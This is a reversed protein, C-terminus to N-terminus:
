GRSMEGRTPDKERTKPTDKAIVPANQAIERSKPQYTKTRALDLAAHKANERSIAQPLKKKDDTFIVAENRARSIAVYHVDKATTRSNTEANIFVRDVTLGQSSHVTTAYAHDLHLPKDIPLEVTRKGDNLQVQGNEVSVVNFRDGNALDLNKENRTIRIVDGRTLETCEPEYVSLQRVNMPNFEITQGDKAKVTLKNGQSNDIVTYLQFRELGQKYYHREPQIVDGKRYNKAFRREAQTTDRRTLTNVEVGLGNLGLEKRVNYNIERRAENTGSVILSKEREQPPQQAYAQAISLRRSADGKIQHIDRIKGLSEPMRSQAALEVAHKLEPDKQRQITEMTAKSMGASLLQHFPRGAEIAKTQKTDGLLVVHAGQKEAIQLTKLMQRAPVVGAEDIVLVTKENLEQDKGRLFSALTNAQMGVERIAKVQSGYPALARISYGQEELTQKTANLMHTKGTGALGEIGIVRNGSSLILKSANLQDQNLNKDQLLKEATDVSMAPQLVGRGEREIQLIIKERKLATQTTYRAEKLALGGNAVADYVRQKATNHDLKNQNVLQKIWEESTLGDTHTDQAPSYRPAEKVLFGSKSLRDIASFVDQAQVYGMGHEIAVKKLDSESIIAQRESLHNIAYRLARNAAETRSHEDLSIEVRKIGPEAAPRNFSMSLEEARKSWVKYLEERNVEEKKARTQMTALQKQAQTATARTLGKESLAKEVQQGRRSFQELQDRTFNALEFFGDREHKLEYGHRQLESALEARYVSGLFKTMKVIEDNKLARWEGDQRQTLNLVVAHTHLQPDLERSTEHRFKAVILNGTNEIQSKGLSKRRAQAHLEAIEIAKTVAADHAKVINVDGGLLAQLSVSKPASFTLDIGIRTKSDDRTASRGTWKGEIKGALLERFRQNEVDHQLGLAAAGKGQWQTADGEKAYYDDAGDGYYSAAQAIDARTLVKHTLM